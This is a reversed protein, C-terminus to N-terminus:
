SRTTRIKGERNEPSIKRCAENLYQRMEAALALDDFYRLLDSM